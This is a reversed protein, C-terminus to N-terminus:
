GLPAGCSLCKASNMLNLTHCYRCPVKVVERITEKEHIERVVQPPPPPKAAATAADVARVRQAKAHEITQCVSQANWDKLEVKSGAVILTTQQGGRMQFQVPGLQELRWSNAVRCGQKDNVVVLVRENTVCLLDKHSLAMRGYLARQKLIVQEGPQLSGALVEELNGDV